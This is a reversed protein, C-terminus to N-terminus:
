PYVDEILVFSPSGDEAVQVSLVDYQVRKWQPHAHQYAAGAKLMHLLKKKTVSEEPHGYRQTTRTKVEVFHLVDQLSGVIDIEHRGDRWNISLIIFGRGALWNIAWEEGKSGLARKNRL